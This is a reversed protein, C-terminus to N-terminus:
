ERQVVEEGQIVKLLDDIYNVVQNQKEYIEVQSEVLGFVLIRIQPQSELFSLLNGIKSKGLNADIIVVEPQYQDIVNNLHLKNKYISSTVEFRGDEQLLSILGAVLISQSQVILVRM